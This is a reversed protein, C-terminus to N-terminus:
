QSQKSGTILFLEELRDFDVLPQVLAVKNVGGGEVKIIKGIPLGPPFIGGMGSTVVMEGEELQADYPLSIMKLLGPGEETGEVIGPTRSEQVMAGAAGERDLILLVEATSPGVAIVKGVLGANSVAVMNKQVGDKSGRDIVVMSSLTNPARSIVRAGLLSYHEAYREKFDLLELLRQNELVYEQLRNNEWTLERLQNRLDENEASIRRAHGIYEFYDGASHWSRMVAGQVPALLENFFIGGTFLSTLRALAVCFVAIVLLVAMKKHLTSRKKM